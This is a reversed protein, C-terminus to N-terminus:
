SEKANILKYLEEYQAQNIRSYLLYVDLKTKLDEPNFNGSAIIRKILNMIM